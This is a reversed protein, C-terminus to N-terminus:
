PTLTRGLTARGPREVSMDAPIAPFRRRQTEQLHELLIRRVEAVTESHRLVERHGAPIVKESTVDERHASSYAVVGDTWSNVDRGKRVGVINHHKVEDPV